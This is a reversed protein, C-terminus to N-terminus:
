ATAAALVRDRGAQKAAYLAQDAREVLASGETADRGYLAVGGSVTVIPSPLGPGLALPRGGVALRARELAALAEGPALGALGTLLVAFEEGGWRCVLDTERLAGVLRRAVQALVRDGVPHGFRDNLSKFRDVDVIAVAIPPGGRRARELERRLAREFARRNPLGTLEDTASLTEAQELRRAAALARGARRAMRLLRRLAAPSPLADGPLDTLSVVGECRPAVGLPLVVYATGAYGRPGGSSARGTVARALSTARGAIGSGIPARVRGVLAPDLGKAAKVFLSTRAPDALMLSLRDAGTERAFARLVFRCLADPRDLRRFCGDVFAAEGVGAEDTGEATAAVRERRPTAQPPPEDPAICRVGLAAAARGVRPDTRPPLTVVVDYPAAARVLARLAARPRPLLADPGVLVPRAGDTLLTVLAGHADTAVDAGRGPWAASVADSAALGVALGRPTATTARM